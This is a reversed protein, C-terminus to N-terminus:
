ILLTVIYLKSIYEKRPKSGTRQEMDPELQQYKVQMHTKLSAPLITQHEWRKFFKWTKQSGYM